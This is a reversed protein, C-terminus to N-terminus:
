NSKYRTTSMTTLHILSTFTGVQFLQRKLDRTELHGALDLLDLVEKQLGPPLVGLAHLDLLIRVVMLELDPAGPEEVGELDRVLLLGFLQLLRKGGTQLYKGNYQCTTNFTYDKRLDLLELLATEHSKSPVLPTCRLLPVKLIELGILAETPLPPM